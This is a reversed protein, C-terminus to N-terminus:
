KKDADLSESLEEFLRRQQKSLKKPTVVRLRVLQDGRGHGRIHTIGKGKFKFVRDTQSGAPVKLKQEGYLTPVMVETGLAAEAFNLSLEYLVSTGDRHFFRHPLVKIMIYLYGPPGGREGADGEGSIRLDTGDDVGAPIDFTILREQKEHGAGHCRSCPETIIRGEGQCRPCGTINSFRGFISQQVRQVRGNGNCEPCVSPQTGAKAGSGRCLACNEIRKIKVEKQCGLAAEEFTITIKQHRDAGRAPGRRANTAVGSFFDYFDEFISGVGGFGAGEFGRSFLGDAGAHGFRDYVNRKEPDARVEYAENVEKFKDAAGDGSNHDPHHQFALKRFAKKIDAESADRGLGLVEYYDRKVAM